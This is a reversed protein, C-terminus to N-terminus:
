TWEVNRTVVREAVLVAEFIRAPGPPEPHYMLDRTEIALKADLLSSYTKSSLIGGQLVFFEKM